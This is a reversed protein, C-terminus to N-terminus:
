PVSFSGSAVGAPFDLLGKVSTFDIGDVATCEVGGCPTGDGRTIYRIQADQSTDARQITVVAQGASEHVYLADSQLQFGTPDPAADAQAAAPALLAGLLAVPLFALALLRNM